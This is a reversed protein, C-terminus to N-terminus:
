LEGTIGVGILIAIVAWVLVVCGVLLMRRMWMEFLEGFRRDGKLMADLEEPQPVRRSDAHYWRNGPDEVNRM